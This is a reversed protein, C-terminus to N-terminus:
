GNMRINIALMLHHTYITTDWSEGTWKMETEGFIQRFTENKMAYSTIVALDEATTYHDEDYLGHPNTFHTNKVGIDQELYTNLNKSFQNITGDIHEAIAWAADNGSNILMGQVLKLLTVQEEAELYVRTGEVNRASESVTVIDALDGNEIAYIATAIKTLSAPVMKEHANKEYLIAGTDSDMLIAAESVIELQELENFTETEAYVSNSFQILFIGILAIYILKKM